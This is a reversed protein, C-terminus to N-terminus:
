SVFVSFCLYWCSVMTIDIPIEQEDDTGANILIGVEQPKMLDTWNYYQSKNPLFEKM